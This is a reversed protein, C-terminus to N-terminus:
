EFVAQQAFRRKRLRSLTLGHTEPCYIGFFDIQGLYDRVVM